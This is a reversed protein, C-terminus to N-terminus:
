PTMTVTLGQSLNVGQGCPGGPNRYWVQFHLTQGAIWGGAAALNPGFSVSGTATASQIGLRVISGGVCLIGDGLPTGLGGNAPISGQALVASVGPVLDQGTFALANAALSTSGSASLKAGQSSSNACGTGAAGTNGCPCALASGDGSCFSTGLPSEDFRHVEVRVGGYPAQPHLVCLSVVITGAGGCVEADSEPLFLDSAVAQGCVNAVGGATSIKAMRLDAIGPVLLPATSWDSWTVRFQTGDFAARPDYQYNPAQCVPFGLAPDLFTGDKMIRRAHIDAQASISNNQQFTLLALDGTRALGHNTESIGSAAAFPTGLSGNQGVFAAGVGGWVVLWRDDFGLSDPFGSGSSLTVYPADLLAGTAGDVRTARILENSQNHDWAAVLFLPAGDLAAVSPREGRVINIAAADLITGDLAVRKGFTHRLTGFNNAWVVLWRSGDFAVDLRDIRRTGTELLIPASDIPQGAPTLRQALVRTTGSVLSLYAVLYGAQATGALVPSTQAPPSYTVDVMNSLSGDTLVRRAFVDGLDGFNGNVASVSYDNWVAQTAGDGGALAFERMTATTQLTTPSGPVLDGAPTVRSVHLTQVGGIVLNSFAIAWNTGDFACDTEPNWVGANGLYSAGGPIAPTGNADVPTGHAGGMSVFFSSGNTCLEPKTYNASYVQEPALPALTTGFVRGYSGAYGKEYAVLYRGAAFEVDPNVPNQFQAGPNLLTKQTVFGLAHVLAGDLSESAGGHFDNYVVLWNSGDSAVAADREDFDDTDEIVIPPNDLVVGAPTVRAAYIGESVFFGTSHASQWVVLYNEGNFAVRPSLQDFADQNVVIPVSDIRQGSADLRAAYIDRNPQVNGPSDVGQGLTARDDEWVVLYQGNGRAIAPKVQSGASVAATLDGPLVYQLDSASAASLPTLILALHALRATLFPIPMSM